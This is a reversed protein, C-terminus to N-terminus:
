YMCWAHLYQCKSISSSIKHYFKLHTKNRSLYFHQSVKNSGEQRSLELSHDCCISQHLDVFFYGLIIMLKDGREKISKLSNNLNRLLILVSLKVTQFLSIIEKSKM